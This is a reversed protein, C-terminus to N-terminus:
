STVSNNIIFVLRLNYITNYSTYACYNIIYYINSPANVKPNELKKKKNYLNKSLARSINLIIPYHFSSM